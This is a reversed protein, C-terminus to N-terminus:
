NPPTPALVFIEACEPKDCGNGSVTLGHLFRGEATPRTSIRAFGSPPFNLALLMREKKKLRRPAGYLPLRQVWGSPVLGYDIKTLPMRDRNTLAWVIVGNADRLELRGILEPQRAVVLHENEVEESHFLLFFVLPVLKILLVVIIASLLVLPLYRRM